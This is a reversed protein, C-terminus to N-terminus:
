RYRWSPPFTAGRQQRLAAKADGIDGLREAPQTIRGAPEPLPRTDAPVLEDEEQRRSDPLHLSVQRPEPDQCIRVTMKKKIDWMVAYQCKIGNKYINHWEKPL